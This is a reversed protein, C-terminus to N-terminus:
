SLNRLTDESDLAWGLHRSEEAISFLLNWDISKFDIEEWREVFNEPALTESDLNIFLFEDMIRILFSEFDRDDMKGFIDTTMQSRILQALKQYLSQLHNIYFIYIDDESALTLNYQPFAQAFQIPSLPLQPKDKLPIRANPYYVWSEVKVAYYLNLYSDLLPAQQFFDPIEFSPNGKLIRNTIKKLEGNSPPSGWVQRCSRPIKSKLQLGSHEFALLPHTIFLLLAAFVIKKM